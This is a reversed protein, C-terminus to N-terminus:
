RHLVQRHTRIKGPETIEDGRGEAPKAHGVGVRDSDCRQHRFGIQLTRVAVADDAQRVIRPANAGAPDLEAGVNAHQLLPGAHREDVAVVAHAMQDHRAGGLEGDVLRAHRADRPDSRSHAIVRARRRQVRPHRERVVHDAHIERDAVGVM